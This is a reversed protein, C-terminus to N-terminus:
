NCMNSLPLSYHPAALVPVCFEALLRRFMALMKDQERAPLSRIHENLEHETLEASVVRRLMALIRAREPRSLSQLHERLEQEVTKM